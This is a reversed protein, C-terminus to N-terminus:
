VPFAAEVARVEVLRAAAIEGGAVRSAMTQTEVMDVTQPIGDLVAAAQLPQDAGGLACPAAEVDRHLLDEGAVLAHGLKGADGAGGAVFPEVDNRAHEDVVGAELQEVAEAALGGVVRTREPLDEFARVCDYAIWGVAGGWFRPLGPVDVPM